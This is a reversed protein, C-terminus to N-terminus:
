FGKARFGLGYVSMGAAYAAVEAASAAACVRSIVAARRSSSSANPTMESNLVAHSASRFTMASSVPLSVSVSAVALALEM